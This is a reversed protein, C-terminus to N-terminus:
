RRTAGLRTALVPDLSALFRDVAETYAGPVGLTRNIDAHSKAQGLVEVRVGLAQARRAFAQAQACPDDRRTTSCEALLPGADGDLRRTPAAAAWTAKSAGFAADYFPMHRRHMVAEIDLAASDLAVTGLWPQVGADRWASPDAAVLAALHAGASHGMLVVRRPDASWERAHAQVFALAAAVDDAQALADRDPLMRYAVSVFVVGRGLWHAAKAGVVGPSAKDGIRWAGGHVMVIVPRATRTEGPPLYVDIAQRPDRGYHVDRLVQTGPPLPTADAPNDNRGGLLDRLRHGRDASAPTALLACFLLAILRPMASGPTPEGFLVCAM